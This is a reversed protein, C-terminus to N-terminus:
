DVSHRRLQYRGYALRESVGDARTAAERLCNRISSPAIRRRHIREAQRIVEEPRLPQNAEALVAVVVEYVWGPRLPAPGSAVSQRAGGRHRIAARANAM